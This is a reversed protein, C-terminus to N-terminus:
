DAVNMVAESAAHPVCPRQRGWDDRGPRERFELLRLTLKMPKWESWAALLADIEGGGGVGEVLVHGGPKLANTICQHLHRLREPIPFYLLCVLDWQDVGMEFQDIDQVRANIRLGLERARIRWRLAWMRCILALLM